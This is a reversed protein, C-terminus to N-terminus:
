GERSSLGSPESHSGWAFRRVGRCEQLIDGHEEHELATAQLDRVRLAPPIKRGNM